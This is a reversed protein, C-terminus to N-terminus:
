GHTPAVLGRERPWGRATGPATAPWSASRRRPAGRAAPTPSSPHRTPSCRSSSAGAEEVADQRIFHMRDGHLAAHLLEEYPTPAEGGEEAFERDLRIPPPGSRTPATGRPDAPHRRRPRDQPGAPRARPPPGHALSSGGARAQVCGCRPRPTALRKGTRIFFPVGAWRWNDVELAPRTPRPTSGARRRRDRPLRTSAACTPGPRCRPDRRVTPKPGTIVDPTTSRRPPDMAATALLQLLHNQVVDCLAGVPDYVQGRDEVGFTETMTIQVTSIPHRNWVPELM